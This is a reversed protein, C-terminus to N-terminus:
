KQSRVVRCSRYNEYANHHTKKRRYSHFYGHFPKSELMECNFVTDRTHISPDITTVNYFLYGSYDVFKKNQKVKEREIPHTFIESQPQCNNYAICEDITEYNHNTAFEKESNFLYNSECKLPTLTQVQICKDKPDEVHQNQYCKQKYLKEEHVTKSTLLNPSCKRKTRFINDNNVQHCLM